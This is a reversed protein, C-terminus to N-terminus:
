HGVRDLAGALFGSPNDDNGDSVSIADVGVDPADDGELLRPGIRVSHAFV